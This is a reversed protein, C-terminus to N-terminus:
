RSGSQGMIPEDIGGWFADPGGRREVTLSVPFDAGRTQFLNGLQTGEDSSTPQDLDWPLM